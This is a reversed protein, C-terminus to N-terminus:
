NAVLTFDGPDYRPSFLPGDGDLWAFTGGETGCLLVAFADGSAPRFGGTLTVVLTGDLTAQGSVILQDFDSGPSYGGVKVTLTGDATQTYDGNIALAGATASDGILLRADNRVSANITGSGALVGGQVDVLGAATLTGGALTTSGGTQTYGGNVRLVSGAGITISGANSFGAATALTGAQVEVTGTNTFPLSYFTTTGPGSKRLTGANVFASRGDGLFDTDAQLDFAAGPQNTLVAGNLVALYYAGAVTATGANALARGDLAKARDGDSLVLSAGRGIATTGAGSMIGGSWTMSGTVTLTGAGTLTGGNLTLTRTNVPTDSIFTGGNITIGGASTPNAIRVMGRDVVVDVSSTLEQVLDNGTVTLTVPLGSAGALVDITNSGYGPNVRVSGIEGPPFQVRQGNLTVDVGGDAARGVAITDDPNSGQDGNVTLVGNAVVFHQGTGYPADPVIFAQDRESWYSQVLVGNLRETYDRAEYDCVEHDGPYPYSPGPDVRIGNLIPPDTVPDTITEVLEHSFLSTYNDLRSGFGGDTVLGVYYPDSDFLESDDTANFHYGAV